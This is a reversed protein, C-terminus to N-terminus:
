NEIDMKEDYYVFYYLFTIKSFYGHTSNGIYFLPQETFYTNQKKCKCKCPSSYYNVLFNILYMFVNYRHM